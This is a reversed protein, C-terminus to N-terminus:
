AGVIPSSAPCPKRVILLYDIVSVLEDQLHQALRAIEHDLLGADTGFERALQYVAADYGMM